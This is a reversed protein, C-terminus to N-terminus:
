AVDRLQRERTRVLEEIAERASGEFCRYPLPLGGRISILLYAVTHRHVETIEAWPVAFAGSKSQRRIEKDDISFNCTGVARKKHWYVLPFLTLLSLRASLPLRAPGPKGKRNAHRRIEILLHDAVISLYENLRYNVSASVTSSQM